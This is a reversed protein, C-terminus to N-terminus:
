ESVESRIGYREKMNKIDEKVENLLRTEQAIDKETAGERQIYHELAHKIIHQRKYEKM